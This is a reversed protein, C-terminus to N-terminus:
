KKSETLMDYCRGEGPCKHFVWRKPCLAEEMSRQCQLVVDEVDEDSKPNGAETCRIIFEARKSDPECWPRFEPQPSRECSVLLLIWFHKM